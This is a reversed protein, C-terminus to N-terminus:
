STRASGTRRRERKVKREQIARSEALILAYIREVLRKPIRLEEARSVADDLVKADRRPHPVPLGREVKHRGITHILEMRKGLLVIIQEDIASIARRMEAMTKSAM